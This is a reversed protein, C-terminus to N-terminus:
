SYKTLFALFLNHTCEFACSYVFLLSNLHTIKQQPDQLTKRLMLKTHLNGYLNKSYIKFHGYWMLKIFIDHVWYLSIGVVTFNHFVNCGRMKVNCDMM